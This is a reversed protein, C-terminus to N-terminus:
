SYFILKWTVPTRPWERGCPNGSAGIRATCAVVPSTARWSSEADLRGCRGVETWAENLDDGASLFIDNLRPAERARERITDRADREGSVASFTTICILPTMLNPAGIYLM